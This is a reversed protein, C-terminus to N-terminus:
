TNYKSIFETELISYFYNDVWEGRIPLVKRKGGEKTMGVKELVKISAINEVACGAEIRHLGLTSFGFHLLAQLAETTFGQRWFAPHIKYWVEANKFKSKGLNMAILGVFDGNNVHKITFVFSKRAVIRQHRMWKKLLGETTKISAPIGLTNFKDVEPISHLQHIDNLDALSIDAMNLRETILEM